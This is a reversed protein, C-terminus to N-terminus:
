QPRPTATPDGENPPPSREFAARYEAPDIWRGRQRAAKWKGYGWWAGALLPPLIALLLLLTRLQYRPM